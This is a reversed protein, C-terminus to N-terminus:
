LVKPALVLWSCSSNVLSVVVRVQPFGGGEGKYYVKHRTVIGVDLHCKTRPSGLPLGSIALTPVGAVKPAWLKAHLGLISIFDLAFNYGEDLNKWRYTAHWRCALLDPRNEVKLPQSDFQWNSERGKKQGYSTNWTDLHTMRAWKLYSRKLLKGIIYFVRWDQRLKLRPRVVLALTQLTAPWSPLRSDCLM